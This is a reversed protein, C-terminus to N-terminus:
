SSAPLWGLAAPESCPLGPQLREPPLQQLTSVHYIHKPYLRQVSAPTHLFISQTPTRTTPPLQTAQAGSSPETLWNVDFQSHFRKIFATM